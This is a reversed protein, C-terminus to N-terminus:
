QHLLKLRAEQGTLKNQLILAIFKSWLAVTCNLDLVVCWASVTTGPVGDSRFAANRNTSMELCETPKWHFTRRFITIMRYTTIHRSRTFFFYYAMDATFVDEKLKIIIYTLFTFSTEIEDLQNHPM